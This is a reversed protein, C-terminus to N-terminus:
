NFRNARIERRASASLQTLFVSSCFAALICLISRLCKFADGACHSFLPRLNCFPYGCSDRFITQFQRLLRKDKSSTNCLYQWHLCRSVWGLGTFKGMHPLPPQLTASATQSQYPRGKTTASVAWCPLADSADCKISVPVCHLSQLPKHSKSV